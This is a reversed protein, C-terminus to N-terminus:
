APQASQDYTKDRIDLSQSEPQGVLRGTRMDLSPHMWSARRAKPNDRCVIKLAMALERAAEEQPLGFSSGTDHLRQAMGCAYQDADLETLHSTLSLLGFTLVVGLATGAIRLLDSEPLQSFGVAIVLWIIGVSAMRLLMHFRAVHALEHLMVMQTQRQSLRALLADSLLMLRFGPIVGAVLATCVRRDTDWVRLRIGRFGASRLFEGSWAASPEESIRRTRWIVGVLLPFLIPLSGLAVLAVSYESAGGPGAIARTVDIVAFIVIVPVLLWAAQMRFSDWLAAVISPREIGTPQHSDAWDAFQQDAAWTSAVVFLSPLLLVIARLAMSEAPLPLERTFDGFGMMTLGIAGVPLWCWRVLELRDLLRQHSIEISQAGSLVRKAAWLALIKAALGWLMLLGFGTSIPSAIAPTEGALSGSALVSILLAFWFLPM